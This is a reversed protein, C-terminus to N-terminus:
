SLSLRTDIYIDKPNSVIGVFENQIKTSDGGCSSLDSKRILTIMPVSPAFFKKPTSRLDIFSYSSWNQPVLLPLPHFSIDHIGRFPQRM